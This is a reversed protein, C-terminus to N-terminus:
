LQEKNKGTARAVAERVIAAGMKLEVSIDQGADYKKKLGERWTAFNNIWALVQFYYVGAKGPTYEASWRDNDGPLLKHEKWQKESSHKVLLAASIRNDGDTFINASVSVPANVIAKAPYKGCAVSPLIGNIIVRQNGSSIAM